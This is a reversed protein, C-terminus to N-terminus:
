FTIMQWFTLFDIVGGVMIELKRRCLCTWVCLRRYYPFFVAWRGKPSVHAWGDVLVVLSYSVSFCQRELTLYPVKNKIRWDRWFEHLEPTRQFGAAKGSQDQVWPMMLTGCNKASEATHEARRHVHMWVEWYVERLLVLPSSRPPGQAWPWM